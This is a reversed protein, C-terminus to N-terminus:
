FHVFIQNDTFGQAIVAGKLKTNVALRDENANQSKAVPSNDGDLRPVM